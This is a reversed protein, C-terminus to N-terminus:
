PGADLLGQIRALGELQALEREIVRLRATRATSDAAEAEPIEELESQEARLMGIQRGLGFAMRYDPQECAIAADKGLLALEFGAQPTCDALAAGAFLLAMVPSSPYPNMTIGESFSRISERRAYAM